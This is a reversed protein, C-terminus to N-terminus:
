DGGAGSGAQNRYEVTNGHYRLVFQKTSEQQKRCLAEATDLVQIM